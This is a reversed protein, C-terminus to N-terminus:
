HYAEKEIAESWNSKFSFHLPINHSGDYFFESKNDRLKLWNAKSDEQLGAVFDTIPQLALLLVDYLADPEGKGIFDNFYM